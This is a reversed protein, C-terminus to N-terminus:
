LVAASYVNKSLNNQVQQLKGAVSANVQHDGVRLIFGGLIREDVIEELEVTGPSIGSVLKLITNKMEADAPVATTMRVKIIGNHAYYLALFADCIEPIIQERRKETLLLIFTLSLDSVAGSYLEKMILRKKEKRIVPSALFVRVNRDNLSGKIFRVDLNVQETKGSELAQQFLARAYRVAAKTSKM